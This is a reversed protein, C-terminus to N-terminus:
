DNNTRDIILEILLSDNYIAGM